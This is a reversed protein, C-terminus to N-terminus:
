MVPATPPQSTQSATGNSSTLATTQSSLTMPTEDKKPLSGERCFTFLDRLSKAKLTMLVDFTPALHAGGQQMDWDVLIGYRDSALADAYMERDIEDFAANIEMQRALREASEILTPEDSEKEATSGDLSPDLAALERAKARYMDAMRRQLAGVFKNADWTVDVGDEGVPFRKTLTYQQLKTFDM